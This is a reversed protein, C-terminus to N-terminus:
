KKEQTDNKTGTQKQIKEERASIIKSFRKDFEIRQVSSIPVWSWIDDKTVFEFLGTDKSFSHSALEFDEVNGTIYVIKVGYNDPLNEILKPLFPRVTQAFSVSTSLFLLAIILTIKKM